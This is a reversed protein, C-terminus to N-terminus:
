KGQGGVQKFYRSIGGGDTFGGEARKFRWGEKSPDLHEGEGGQRVASVSFGRQGDLDIVPCGPACEWSTITEMGDADAFGSHDTRVGEKNPRSYLSGADRFRASEGGRRGLTGRIAKEGIQQCEPLHELIINAPWRGGSKPQSVTKIPMSSEYGYNAIEPRGWKRGAFGESMHLMEEREASTTPQRTADIHIAGTESALINLAVTAQAIPKRAVTVVIM